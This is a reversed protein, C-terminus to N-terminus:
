LFFTDFASWIQQARELEIESYTKYLSSFTYPGVGRINVSKAYEYKKALSAANDFWVQFVQVTAENGSISDFMYNFFPSQTNADLRIETNNLKKDILLMLDAYDNENGAADSCNYGRFPVFPIPCYKSVLSEMQSMECSYNYGYFPVGLILKSQDIGIELYGDLGRKATYYPSNAGAICTDLVQSRTDYDMVYLLDSAQGLSVYDYERGDINYPSWAVCVSIQLHM